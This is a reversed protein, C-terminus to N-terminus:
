KRTRFLLLYPVAKNGAPDKFNSFRQSNLFIAYTKGPELKVPLKCTRKDKDYSPNGTLEPFTEKSLTVWSWSGNQMEKSFTVKIEKLSPDVDLAGEEPVTKLVVPPFDLFPWNEVPEGTLEKKAEPEDAAALSVLRDAPPSPRAEVPPSGAPGAKTGQGALAAVGAAGLVAAVLFSAGLVYKKLTMIPSAGAVLSAVGAPVVGALPQGAALRLAARATAHFLDDPLSARSSRTSLVATIVSATPALGHRTLRSRLLDRGRALRSHITGVPCCLRHAAEEHTLGELYCLVIASRYRDPLGRLADDILTRLDAEPGPERSPPEPIEANTREQGRRRAAVARARRAVRVSVGYLWPALTPGVRVSGAKRVLVLFIAEFADNADAPDRLLRRCVDRVMPGHRHVLATFAAEAAEDRRARFRELLEQDTMGATAGGGLLLHFERMFRGSLESAM